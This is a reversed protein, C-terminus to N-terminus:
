YIIYIGTKKKLNREILNYYIDIKGDEYWRPHNSKDSSFIKKPFNSWKLKKAQNLWYIKEQNNM